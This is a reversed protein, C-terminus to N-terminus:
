LGLEKRAEEDWRQPTQAEIEHAYTSATLSNGDYKVNVEYYSGFEHRETKVFLHAGEPEQGFTRRLQNIFAICEHWALSRDTYPVQQCDEDSPTPGISLTSERTANDLRGTM